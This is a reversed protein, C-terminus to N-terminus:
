AFGGVAPAGAFSTSVGAPVGLSTRTGGGVTQLFVVHDLDLKGSNIEEVARVPMLM